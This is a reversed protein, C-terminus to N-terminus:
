HSESLFKIIQYDLWRFGYGDGVYGVFGLHGGKATQWIETHRPWSVSHISKPDIMPDDQSFIVQCPVTIEPIFNKSSCKEYYDLAGKFDWLISTYGEDFEYFTKAKSVTIKPTDPVLKERDRIQQKLHYLFYKEYFRNKPKTIWQASSHLDVVPCITLSHSVYKEAESGLEGLMKLIINGGLSFGVLILPSLPATMKLAKIVEFIDDSTGGHYTRRALSAGSGAGRLNVRISRYGISLLKPTLRVLYKSRHSGTLGHVFVVTRDTDKWNPPTTIECHLKDGDPLSIIAHDTHPPPAPRRGFSGIITQFHGSSIIPLPNFTLTKIRM